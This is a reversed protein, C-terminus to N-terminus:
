PHGFFFNNLVNSIFNIANPPRCHSWDVFHVSKGVVMVYIVVSESFQHILGEERFRSILEQKYKEQFLIPDRALAIVPFKAWNSIVIYEYQGHESEPGVM